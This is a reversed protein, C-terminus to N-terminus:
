LGGGVNILGIYREMMPLLAEFDSEYSYFAVFYFAESDKWFTYYYKFGNITSIASVIGNVNQVPSFDQGSLEIIWQAYEERSMNTVDYGQAAFEAFEEVEVLAAVVKNEYLGAYAYERGVDELPEFGEPLVLTLGHIDYFIDKKEEGNRNVEKGDATIQVKECRDFVDSGYIIDDSNLTVTTLEECAAFAEDGLELVEATITVTELRNCYNFAGEKLVVNEFDLEVTQLKPCDFFAGEGVAIELGDATFETLGCGSMAYDDMTLSCNRIVFMGNNEFMDSFGGANIHVTSDEMIVESLNECDQFCYEGIEVDSDTIKLSELDCDYLGLNLDASSGTVEIRLIDECNWFVSSDFDVTSKSVQLEKLGTEAFGNLGIEVTSNEFTINELNPCEYFAFEGIELDMDSIVVGTITKNESFAWNSIATVQEGKSNQAPITIVTDSCSGIGVITCTNDSNSEFELGKSGPIDLEAVKEGCASLSTALALAITLLLYRKKM